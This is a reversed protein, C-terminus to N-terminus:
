KFEPELFKLSAEDAGLTLPIDEPVQWSSDVESATAKQFDAFSEPEYSTQAIRLSKFDYLNGAGRWISNPFVLAEPQFKGKRFLCQRFDVAGSPTVMVNVGEFTCRIAHLSGGRGIRLEQPAGGVRRILVNRMQLRCHGGEELHNGDLWFTKAASSEIVAKELSHELGIFYLDFGHCDRIFVNQYHTQSTGTDCLGTANGISTFGDIRCTADEHASFGDDGCEIATINEFVLNRQAGHINFGDNYPHTGTLNRVTINSGAKAFVVSSSRAPYRINATDLDQGPSLRLYFADEEKVYTWEKPQLEEVHKLPESPGKSCRNMRIMEGDWLLFWRGVIADDTAKYLKARRFLGPGVKEWGASTVPESGELVAGHGDLIIPKDPEGHKDIFVASEHYTVPKLHITDGPAALKIARAITRVPSSVGDGGDDGKEPDVRIEAGPLLLPLLVIGFCLLKM